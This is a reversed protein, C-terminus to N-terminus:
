LNIIKWRLKHGEIHEFFIQKHRAKFIRFGADTVIRHLSRVENARRLEENLKPTFNVANIIFIPKDKASKGSFDGLSVRRAYKAAELYHFNLVQGSYSCGEDHSDTVLPGECMQIYLQDTVYSTLWRERDEHTIVHPQVQRPNDSITPVELDSHSSM